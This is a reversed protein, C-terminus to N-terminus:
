LPFKTATLEKFSERISVIKPSACAARKAILNAEAWPQEGRRMSPSKSNVIRAILTGWRKKSQIEAGTIKSTWSRRSEMGLQFAKFIKLHALESVCRTALHAAEWKTNPLMGMEEKNKDEILNLLPL